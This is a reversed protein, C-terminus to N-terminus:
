EVSFTKSQEDFVLREGTILPIDLLRHEREIRERPIGDVLPHGNLLSHWVLQFDAGAKVAETCTRALDQVREKSM